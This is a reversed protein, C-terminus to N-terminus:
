NVITAPLLTVNLVVSQLSLLKVCEVWNGLQLLYMFPICLNSCMNEQSLVVGMM